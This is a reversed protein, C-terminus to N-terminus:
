DFLGPLTLSPPVLEPPLTAAQDRAAVALRDVRENEPHGAHGRVWEFTLTHPRAVLLIAQWLDTNPIPKNSKRWGKRAWGSIWDQQFADVIYRSDTVVHVTCPMKLARLGELLASLEMRNNTTAAAGGSLERTHTGARLLCAWGGPGPNGSCAGDTVLRVDKLASNIKTPIMLPVRRSTYFPEPNTATFVEVSETRHVGQGM